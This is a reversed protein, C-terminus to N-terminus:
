KGFPVVINFTASGTDLMTRFRPSGFFSNAAADGSREDPSKKWWGFLAASLADEVEGKWNLFGGYWNYIAENLTFFRDSLEQWLPDDFRQTPQFEREFEARTQPFPHPANSPIEAHPRANLDFLAPARQTTVAQREPEARKPAPAFVPKNDPAMGRLMPQSILFRPQSTATGTQDPPSNKASEDARSTHALADFALTAALAFVVLNRRYTKM